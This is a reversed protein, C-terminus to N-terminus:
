RNVLRILDQAMAEVEHPASFLAQLEGAPNTLIITTSHDMLYGMSSQETEVRAYMVGLQGTLRDLEKPDGTVGLFTNNFYPVYDALVAATDRQPDITVFDTQIQSNLSERELRDTLRALMALTTPCIDPCRTYGFALLHWRGKISDQSFPNGTHDTLNFPSLPRPQPILTGSVLAVPKQRAQPEGAQRLMLNATIGLVIILLAVPVWWRQGSQHSKQPQM